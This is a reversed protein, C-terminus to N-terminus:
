TRGDQYISPTHNQSTTHIPSLPIFNEHTLFSAQATGAHSSHYYYPLLESLSVDNSRCADMIVRDSVQRIYIIMTGDDRLLPSCLGLKKNDITCARRTCKWARVVSSGYCAVIWDATYRNVSSLHLQPTARMPCSCSSIASPTWGAVRSLSIQEICKLVRLWAVM